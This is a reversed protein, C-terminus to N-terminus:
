EQVEAFFRRLLNEALVRRFASRGRLDSIPSIEQHMTKVALELREPDLAQGTLVAETKRLRLATAAVGGFALRADRIRRAKKDAWNVRLAANVSSIDLDKRESVKKLALSESKDPPQFSVASIIEGRKLATQRYGIFFKEIPISRKGKPGAVEILADAVLLFPPTDAIPSANAVNGILTAINKIQPSAFLDLFRAFEAIDDQIFERLRSLSVRAGVSIRGGKLRRIEYLEPILHLSIVRRLRKRWKNHIVGLDTAAALLRAEPDRALAACAQKLTKPAFIRFEEGEILLPKAVAARLDKLQAAPMYRDAVSECARLNLSCAAALIPQYGTCRCLNGTLANKAEREGIPEHRDARLRKEVLGTMAMVFGPTCYGCQSAHANMMAGQVPTLRDGEALADVTVLSMGDAQAVTLICSNVPFYAPAGRGGKFGAFAVLVTCAGCDGEACVIKTGTLSRARRLYDALMQGAHQPGIELRKGNLYLVAHTRM